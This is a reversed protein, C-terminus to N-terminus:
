GIRPRLESRSPHIKILDTLGPEFLVGHNPGYGVVPQTMIVSKAHIFTHL